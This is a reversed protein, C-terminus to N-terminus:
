KCGLVNRYIDAARKNRKLRKAHTRIVESPMRKKSDKRGKRSRKKSAKRRNRKKAM